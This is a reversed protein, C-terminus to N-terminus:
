SFQNKRRKLLFHSLGYRKQYIIEIKLYFRLRYLDKSIFLLFNIAEEERAISAVPAKLEVPMKGKFLLSLRNLIARLGPM